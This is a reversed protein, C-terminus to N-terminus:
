PCTCVEFVHSFGIQKWVEKFTTFTFPAGAGASLLFRVILQVTDLQATYEIPRRPARRDQQTGMAQAPVAETPDTM